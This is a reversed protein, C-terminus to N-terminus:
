ILPVIVTAVAIALAGAAATLCMANRIQASGPALLSLLVSKEIKVAKLLHLHKNISTSQTAPFTTWIRDHFLRADDM